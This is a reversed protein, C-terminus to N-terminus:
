NKNEGYFMYKLAKTILLFIFLEIIFYHFYTLVLEIIKYDMKSFNLLNYFQIEEMIAGLVCLMLVMLVSICIVIVTKFFNDINM